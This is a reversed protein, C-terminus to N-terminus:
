NANRVLIKTFYSVFIELTSFYDQPVKQEEKSSMLADLIIFLKVKCIEAKQLTRNKNDHKTIGQQKCTVCCVTNLVPFNNVWFKYNLSQFKILMYLQTFISM